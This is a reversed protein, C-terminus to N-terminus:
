KSSFRELECTRVARYTFGRNDQLFDQVRILPDASDLCHSVPQRSGPKEDTHESVM